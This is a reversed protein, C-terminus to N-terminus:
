ARVVRQQESDWRMGMREMSDRFAEMQARSSDDAKMQKVQDTFQKLKADPVGGSGRAAQRQQGQQSRQGQNRNQNGQRQGGGQQRNGAGNQRNGQNSSRRGGGGGAQVTAASDDSELDYLTNGFRKGFTRFARKMGDTVAGKIATDHADVSQGALAAVGVDARRVDGVTVLVTARYAQRGDAEFLATGLVECNWGDFGFVENATDIVSWGPIYRVMRESKGKGVKRQRILGQDLQTELAAKTDDSFGSPATPTDEAM